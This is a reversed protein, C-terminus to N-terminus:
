NFIHSNTRRRNTAYLPGFWPDPEAGKAMNLRRYPQCRFTFNAACASMLPPTAVFWAEHTQDEDGTDAALFGTLNEVFNGFGSLPHRPGAQPMPNIRISCDCASTRGDSYLQRIVHQMSNGSWQHRSGKISHVPSSSVIRNAIPIGVAWSRSGLHAESQRDDLPM